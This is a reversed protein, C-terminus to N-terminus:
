GSQNGDDAADGHEDAEEGMMGLNLKRGKREKAFNLPISMELTIHPRKVLWFFDNALCKSITPREANIINETM